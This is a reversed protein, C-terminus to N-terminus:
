SAAAEPFVDALDVKFIKALAAREDKTPTAYGNEIRWYRNQKIKAKAAIDMQSVGREARLVRLRINPKM